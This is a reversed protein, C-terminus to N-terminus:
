ALPDSAPLPQRPPEGRERLRARYPRRMGLSVLAVVVALAVMTTWLLSPGFTGLGLVLTGVVPGVARASNTGANYAGYYAGRVEAAAMAGVLAQQVPSVFDEGVTVVAMAGLFFLFGSAAGFLLYGVGYLPAGVALAEFAWRWREQLGAIPLQLLVVLVGNLSYILGFEDYPVHRFVTLYLALPTGFQSMLITVAFLLVLLGVFFRDHFPLTMGQTASTTRSSGTPSPRTERAWLFLVLGEGISFVSAFLFLYALGLSSALLGGVAPSIAFGTNSFVRQVSFARIRADPDTVDAVIANQAPVALGMLVANVAWIGMLLLLGSQLYLFLLAMTGAMLFSPYVALGRRGWRDALSGGALFALVRIPVISAVLLGVAVLSLGYLEALVVPLFIWTASRGVSRVLAASGIVYVQRDM